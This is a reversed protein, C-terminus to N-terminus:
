SIMCNLQSCYALVRCLYIFSFYSSKFSDLVSLDVQYVGCHNRERGSRVYRNTDLQVTLLVCHNSRQRLARHYNGQSLMLSSKNTKAECHVVSGTKLRQLTLSKSKNADHSFGWEKKIRSQHNFFIQTSLSLIVIPGTTFFLNLSALGNLSFPFM